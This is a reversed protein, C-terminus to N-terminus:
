GATTPESRPAGARPACESFAPLWLSFVAGGGDRNAASLSGGHRRVLDYSLSLGLGTGEGPPKTTFFPEFVHPLVDDPIGPGRDAVRLAVGAGEPRVAVAIEPLGSSAQIANVLLNLVVQVLEGEAAAVPPAPAIELRIVGTPLGARALEAARRAVDALQLPRRAETAAEHRTFRRLREVLAVIREVGEQTEEVLEAAERALADARAADGPAEGVRVALKELQVLNARIFALPNNVEHAIGATLIGVAELRAALQLRRATREAETRDHLVAAAGVSGALGRLPFRRVELVRRAQEGALTEVEDLRRGVLRGEGVLRHAAPNADVVRGDLDAVVVGAELQALVDSHGLPLCAALGSDVVGVRFLLTAVGLLIPTPDVPGFADLLYLANGVLPIAVAAVLALLAGSGVRRLRRAARAFHLTGLALLLWCWALNGLFLPGRRPPWSSWDSFWRAPDSWYLGSYFFVPPLAALAVLWGAGRRELARSAQAGLWLWAVGIFCAGLYFVRRAFMRAEPDSAHQALLEGAAWLGGCLGLAGLPRTGSRPGPSLLPDLVLWGTVAVTFLLGAEYLM